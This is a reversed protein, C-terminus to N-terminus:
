ERPIASHGMAGTRVCLSGPGHIAIESFVEVLFSASCAREGVGRYRFGVPPSPRGWLIIPLQNKHALVYSVRLKYSPNHARRSYPNRAYSHASRLLPRTTVFYRTRRYCPLGPGM